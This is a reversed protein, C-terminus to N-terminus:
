TLLIYIDLTTFVTYDTPPSRPVEAVVQSVALSSNKCTDKAWGFAMM